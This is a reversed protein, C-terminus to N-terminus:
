PRVRSHDHAGVQHSRAHESKRGDHLVHTPDRAQTEDDKKGEPRDVRSTEDRTYPNQRLVPLVPRVLVTVQPVKRVPLLSLLHHVRHRVKVDAHDGDDEVQRCGLGELGDKVVDCTVQAQPLVGQHGHEENKGERLDSAQLVDREQGNQPADRNQSRHEDSDAAHQLLSRELPGVRLQNVRRPLINPGLHVGQHQDHEGVAPLRDEGLKDRGHVLWRVKGLRHPRGGQGHHPRIDEDRAHTVGAQSTQGDSRHRISQWLIEPGLDRVDQEEPVHKHGVDDLQVDEGLSHAVHPLHQPRSAPGCSLRFTLTRRLELIGPNAESEGRGEEAKRRVLGQSLEDTGSEKASLRTWRLTIQPTELVKKTMMDKRSLLVTDKKESSSAKAPAVPPMAVVYMKGQRNMTLTSWAMEFVSFNTHLVMMTVAQMKATTHRHLVTRSMIWFHCSTPGGKMHM